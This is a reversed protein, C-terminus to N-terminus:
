LTIVYQTIDIYEYNKLRKLIFKSRWFVLYNVVDPKMKLPNPLITALRIMEDLTLENHIKSFYYQSWIYEIGM